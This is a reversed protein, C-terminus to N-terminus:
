PSREKERTPFTTDPLNRGGAIARMSMDSAAM